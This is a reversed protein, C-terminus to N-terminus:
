ISENNLGRQNEIYKRLVDITVNGSTALFYSPSWFSDGWVKDKLFDSHRKRLEKSSLGKLINIFKTIDLSPKTRFLVHVHDEGCGIEIVEVGNKASIDLVISKLDEVVKDNTFAKQRYKVVSIFHYQLSFVANNNKDLSYM